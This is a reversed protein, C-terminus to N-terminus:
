RGEDSQFGDGIVLGGDDFIFYGTAGEYRYAGRLNTFTGDATVLWVVAYEPSPGGYEDSLDAGALAEVSLVDRPALEQSRAVRQRM